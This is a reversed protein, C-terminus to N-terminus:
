PGAATPLAFEMAVPPDCCGWQYRVHTADVWAGGTVAGAEGPRGALVHDPAAGRLFAALRPTAVVDYPGTYSRLLLVHGCGPAFIDFSWYPPYMEGHPFPLPTAQGPVVFALRDYEDRGDVRVGQWIATVDGCTVRHEIPAAAATTGTADPPAADGAPVAPAREPARSSCAALVLAAAARNM